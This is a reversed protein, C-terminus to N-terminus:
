LSTAGPGPEPQMSLTQVIGECSRVIVRAADTQDKPAMRDEARRQWKALAELAVEKMGPEGSQRALRDPISQGESGLLREAEPLDAARLSVGGTRLLNLLRMEAFEHALSEIKEIETSLNQAAPSSDGVTVADLALLASRAKLIDRRGAFQTELVMRLEDLGSAARFENSLAKSSDVTGRRVLDIALRVGFLGFRELLARREIPLLRVTVDESTLRDVAVLLPDILDAPESALSALGRFEAETLSVGAQALLGAVPVVTQCLRRLKPDVRYRAAIRRASNMADLRGVGVEDARSLVGIANIPTAQSAEDDHFAELFRIDSGHLHRLLYLVADASTPHEADPTLFGETRSSIDASISGIGPTDILTLERLASSPWEVLIRNLDGPTNGALDINLAGGDRDFRTELNPGDTPELTVRYTLGDRYWTVVKTCEGADTPALEEGVLANLLTSKGAKVRGAIAVRLPEDIRALILDLDVEKPSGEFDAKAKRALSAVRDLLSM